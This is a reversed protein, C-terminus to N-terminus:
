PTKPAPLGPFTGPQYLTGGHEEVFARAATAEKFAILSPMCRDYCVQLPSKSEDAAAAHTRMCPAEDSGEVLYADSFPLGSGGAYDTVRISRVRNGPEEDYHLACRPCCAVVNKGSELTLTTRVPDHVERQCIWCREPGQACATLAAVLTVILFLRQTSM